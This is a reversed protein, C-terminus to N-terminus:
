KPKDLLRKRPGKPGPKLQGGSLKQFSLRARVRTVKGPFATRTALAADNLTPNSQKEMWDKMFDSLTQDSIPPAREPGVARGESAIRKVSKAKRTATREIFARLLPPVLHERRPNRLLYELGERPRLVLVHRLDDAPHHLVTRVGDDDSPEQSLESPRDADDSTEGGDESTDDVNAKLVVHELVVPAEGKLDEVIWAEGWRRADRLAGRIQLQLIGHEACRPSMLEALLLREFALAGMPETVECEFYEDVTLGHDACVREMHESLSEDRICVSLRDRTIQLKACAFRAHKSASV